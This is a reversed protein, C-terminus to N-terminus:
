QVLDNLSEILAERSFYKKVLIKNKELAKCNVSHFDINESSYVQIGFQEFVGNLTSAPNLYVKKGLGLLCITNGFAQQRNHDFIAVNVSSLFDTYQEFEMFKTIPLFQDGFIKKGEKIVSNAYKKDGYSLPCYIKSNNPVSHAMKKFIAVHNNTPSASNGVMINFDSNDRDKGSAEVYVNNPYNFCLIHKGRAGYWDRAFDVDGPTGTVLYGFRKIVPSRLLEKVKWRWNRKGLRYVYLDGGWIIWYCKPLLWPALALVIVLRIDFLGHIIVKKASHMKLFLKVYDIFAGFFNSNCIQVNDFEEFDCIDSSGSLWFRQKEVGFTDNVLKIFPGMIPSPTAIHLIM